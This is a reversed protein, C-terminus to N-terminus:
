WSGTSTTFVYNSKYNNKKMDKKQWQRHVDLEKQIVDTMPITRISSATKPEDIGLEYHIKEGKSFTPIYILQKNIYIGNDEFDDYTLALLESIRAGTYYALVIFFRLRFHVGAKHFNSLITDIEESTWTIIKKEKLTKKKIPLVLSTTLDRSVGERELYKFFKRMLKHINKLASPPCDLSNYTKQIVSPTIMNLPYYYLDTQKIYKNWTSIYLNKTGDKLSDNIFFEYIWNDALIGFYQKATETGLGKASLYNQYKEYCEKKTKGYFQKKIAVEVGAENIIHGVTRTIKKTKPAM